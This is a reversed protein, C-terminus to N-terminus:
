ERYEEVDYLSLGKSSEAISWRSGIPKTYFPYLIYALALMFLGIPDAMAAKLGEVLMDKRSLRMDLRDIFHELERHGVVARKVQSIFEEISEVPKFWVVADDRYRVQYGREITICQMYLDIAITNSPIRTAKAINSRVAMARGMAIYQNMGLLRVRRLWSSTFIDAREAISWRKNYGQRCNSNYLPLPMPNGACLGAHEDDMISRALLMTTCRAPIVDADYLVIVDSKGSANAFIENWASAAGRREDHHMVVINLMSKCSFDKIMEPTADSSDDSIIVEVIEGSNLHQMELAKLLALISDQENYSPIGVSIRM